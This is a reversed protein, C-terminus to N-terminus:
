FKFYIFPHPQGQGVAVIAAVLVLALGVAQYARPQLAGEEVLSQTSPLLVSAILAAALEPKLAVTSALGHGLGTMGILMNGFTAFDPSRFLVWGGLVFLM